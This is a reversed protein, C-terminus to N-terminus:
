KKYKVSNFVGKIIGTAYSGKKLSFKITIKYKGNNLEDSKFKGYELNEPINLIPRNFNRFKGKILNDDSFDKFKLKNRKLVINIANVLEEDIELLNKDLKDYLLPMEKIKLEEFLKKDIKSYYLLSGCDYDIYIRNEVPLVSKLYEKVSENWLYSQYAAIFLDNLRVDIYKYAEKYKGTNKLKKLVNIYMKSKINNESLYQYCKEWDGWNKAIYRKLDKITKNESKGYKTLLIKFIEEFNNKLMYEAIFKGEFVSGFRQNDFYNPVGQELNRINEAIDLFYTKDINRITIEFENGILDGITLKESSYGIFTLKLNNEKINIEYEEPISIYQKTIAHRDKLGCYGIEKLPIEQSKSIYSIAKLNEMNKKCLEYIKYNKESSDEKVLINELNLLEQVKFDEPKQRLKM